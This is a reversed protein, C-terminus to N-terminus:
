VIDAERKTCFCYRAEFIGSCDTKGHAGYRCQMHHGCRWCFEGAAVSFLPRHPNMVQEIEAEVAARKRRRMARFDKLDLGIMIAWALAAFGLVHQRYQSAFVEVGLLACVFLIYIGRRTM